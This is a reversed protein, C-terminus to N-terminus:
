PLEPLPMWLTPVNGNEYDDSWGLFGPEIGLELWEDELVWGYMWVEEKDNLVPNGPYEDWRAVPALVWGHRFIFVKTGDKPATEIPQRENM